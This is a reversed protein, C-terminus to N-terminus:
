LSHLNKHPSSDSTFLGMTSCFNKQSEADTNVRTRLVPVPLNFCTWILCNKKCCKSRWFTNVTWLITVFNFGASKFVFRKLPSRLLSRPWIIPRCPASSLFLSSWIRWVLRTWIAVRWCHMRRMWIAIVVIFKLRWSWPHMSPLLTSLICSVVIIWTWINSAILAAIWIHMHYPLM